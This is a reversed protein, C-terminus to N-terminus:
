CKNFVATTKKRKSNVLPVKSSRLKNVDKCIDSQKQM